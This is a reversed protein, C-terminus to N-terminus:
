ITFDINRGINSDSKLHSVQKQESEKELSFKKRASDYEEKKSSNMNLLIERSKYQKNAENNEDNTNNKAPEVRSVPNTEDIDQRFRDIFSLYSYKSLKKLRM